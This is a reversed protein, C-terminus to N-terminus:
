EGDEVTLIGLAMLLAQQKDAKLMSSFGVINEISAEVADLEAVTMSMIEDYSYDLEIYDELKGNISVVMNIGFDRLDAVRQTTDVVYSKGNYKIKM